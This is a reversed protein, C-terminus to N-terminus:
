WDEECLCEERSLEAFQGLGMGERLPEIQDAQWIEGGDTDSPQGAMEDLYYRIGDVDWRELCKNIETLSARIIGVTDQVWQAIRSNSLPANALVTEARAMAERVLAAAESRREEAILDRIRAFHGRLNFQEIHDRFEQTTLDRYFNSTKGKAMAQKSRDFRGNELSLARGSHKLVLVQALGDAMENEERPVQILRYPYESQMRMLARCFDKMRNRAKWTGLVQHVVLQSDSQAIVPVGPNPYLAQTIRLGNLLALYEAENCSGYGLFLTEAALVSEGQRLYIGGGMKGPNESLGDVALRLPVGPALPPTGYDQKIKEITKGIETEQTPTTTKM